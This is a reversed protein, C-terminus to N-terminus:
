DTKSMLGGRIRTTTQANTIEYQGVSPTKDVNKGLDRTLKSFTGGRAERVFTRDLLERNYHGPGPAKESHKANEAFFGGTGAAAKAMTGGKPKQPLECRVAMYADLAFGVEPTDSM